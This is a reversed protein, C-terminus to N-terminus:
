RTGAARARDEGLVAVHRPLERETAISQGIRPADDQQRRDREPQKPREIAVRMGEDRQVRDAHEQAEREALGPHDAVPQPNAFRAPSPADDDVRAAGDQGADDQGDDHVLLEFGPRIEDDDEDRQEHRHHREDMALVRAGPRFQGNPRLGDIAAGCRSSRTMTGIGPMSRADIWAILTARDISSSTRATNM